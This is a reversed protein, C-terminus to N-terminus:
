PAAIEGRDIADYYQTLATSALYALVEKQVAASTLLVKALQGESSQAAASTPWGAEDVAMSPVAMYTDLAAQLKELSLAQIQMGEMSWLFPLLRVRASETLLARMATRMRPGDIGAPRQVHTPLSSESPLHLVPDAVYVQELTGATAQRCDSRFWEIQCWFPLALASPTSALYASFARRLSVTRLVERIPRRVVTSSPMTPSRTTTSPAQTPSKVSHTRRISSVGSAKRSVAPGGTALDPSATNSPNENVYTGYLEFADMTPSVSRMDTNREGQFFSTPPRETAANTSPQEVFDVKWAITAGLETIHYVEGEVFTGECAAGDVTMSEDVRVTAVRNSRSPPLDTEPELWGLRVMHAALVIAEDVSVLTTFNVLWALAEISSFHATEYMQGLADKAYTAQMAMGMASSETRRPSLGVMRHFVIRVVADSLLVDDQEDRELFLLKDCLTHLNLLNSVSRTAIGHRTVFRDILHLGKPSPAYVEGEQNVVRELLCADIFAMCIRHATEQDMTFSTMTQSLSLMNQMGNASDRVIQVFQLAQMRQVVAPLVFALPYRWDPWRDCLSILVTTFLGHLDRCIPLGERNVRMTWQENSQLAIPKPMGDMSSAPRASGSPDATTAEPAPTTGATTDAETSPQPISDSSSGLGPTTSAM